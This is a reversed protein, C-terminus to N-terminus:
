RSARASPKKASKPTPPCRSQPADTSVISEEAGLRKAVRAADMATNGGGYVAVRRGILPKEGAAVNHM